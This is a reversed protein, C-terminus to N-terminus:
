WGPEGVQVWDAKDMLDGYRQRVDKDIADAWEEDTMENGPQVDPELHKKPDDHSM